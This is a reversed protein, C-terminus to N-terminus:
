KLVLRNIASKWPAFRQLRIPYPKVTKARFVALNASLLNISKELGMSNQGLQKLPPTDLPWLVYSNGAQFMAEVCRYGWSESMKM